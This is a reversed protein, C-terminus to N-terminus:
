RLKRIEVMKMGYRSFHRILKPTIMLWVMDGFPKKKLYVASGPRKKIFMKQLAAAKEEPILKAIGDIQAGQTYKADAYVLSVKKNKVLNVYKRSSKSTVLVIQKGKWVSTMIASEPKGAPSSTSLVCYKQRELFNMINKPIRM